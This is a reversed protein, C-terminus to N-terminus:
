AVSPNIFINEAKFIHDLPLSALKKHARLTYNAIASSQTLAKNEVLRYINKEIMEQLAPLDEADLAEDLRLLRGYFGKLLFKVRSGVKLDEATIERICVDLDITLYDVLCQAIEEKAGHDEKAAESKLRKLLLAVHLSLLEFRGMPTDPVNLNAYFFPTRAHSSAIGYLSEAYAGTDSKQKKFLNFFTM